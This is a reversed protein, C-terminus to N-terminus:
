RVLVLRRTQTEGAARVRVFYVGAAVRRGNGDHGTWRVEGPGAPRAADLLTTVRRGRVDYVEARVQAGRTLQWRVLTQDGFPNPSAAISAFAPPVTASRVATVPPDIEDLLWVANAPTVTVHPENTDPIFLNDFPTHALLDADGAIDYFPDTTTIALASVAPIFCHSDHLAVIDGYPAVVADMQAMSSRSGGPANDWPLTGSVSVDLAETSGIIPDLLGQFIQVPGGNPVAWVNGRVIVLFGNYVYSIIQAGAVFGQDAGVGSGNSLAVMRPQAPYDGMGALETEFAGRMPDAAGTAGAPTTHHYLLMQRAAPTDLRALLDAAEVSQGSFFDLWYQIGLPINAGAHPVDFSIFNRVRHPDANNEMWALAYRSVLGGMSAGVLPFDDAPNIMAQVQHILDVLVFANRQIYETSETFDLVVADYGRTRLDELLNEQNLLAYLEDWNMTNDIDFGEVVVAPKTLVTNGPALYVFARGSATGGNYTQTGTLPITDNPSPTVLARVDMGFAAYRAEGTTTTMRVRVTYTGTSAYHVAVPVNWRLPRYGAGDGFDAAIREPRGTAADAVFLRADLVFRADAGRYTYGRLPAALFARASELAGADLVLSGNEVRAAGSADAGARIRDYRVDLLGIRVTLDGDDHFARLGPWVPTDLSAHTLEFIAQRLTVASAAPASPSGDFFDLRAVPVALDYLIGSPVDARNVRPPAAWGSPAGCLMCLLTALMTMRFKRTSRAAPYRM